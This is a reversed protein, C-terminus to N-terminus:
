RTLADRPRFPDGRRSRCAAAAGARRSTADPEHLREADMVDTKGDGIEVIRDLGIGRKEAPAELMSLGEEILTDLRRRHHKALAPDLQERWGSFVSRHSPEERLTTGAHVVNSVLDVLDGDCQGLEGCGSRLQDVDGGTAAEEAQLNGKDMGVGDVANERLDYGNGSDGSDTRM